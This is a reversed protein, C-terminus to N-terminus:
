AANVDIGVASGVTSVHHSDLLYKPRHGVGGCLPGHVTVFGRDAIRHDRASCERPASELPDLDLLDDRTVLLPHPSGECGRAQVLETSGASRAAAPRWLGAM